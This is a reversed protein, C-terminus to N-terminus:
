HLRFYVEVTIDSVVPETGCMAPKFTWSKLTRLTAEDLSRTAGHLVNFDTVSGDTLVTMAVITNGSIKNERDSQPYGPDPMKLPIPHKMGECERREIAGKPPVFLSEDLSTATLSEVTATILKSGNELLEFKRPYHYAGFDFYDSFLRSRQEDNGSWNESMIEHTSSNLCIERHGKIGEREVKLCTQEMGNELHSKQKKVILRESGQAFQLLSILDSVRLPTFAFNRSIYRKDGNRIQIEEFNAMEVKRWWKDKREWELTIHGHLPVDIQAIFSASLEFPAAQDRYLNARQEAAILLQQGLADAGGWLPIPGLLLFWAILILERM